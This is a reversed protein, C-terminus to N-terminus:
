DARPNHAQTPGRLMRVVEARLGCNARPNTESRAELNSPELSADDARARHPWRSPPQRHLRIMAGQWAPGQFGEWETRQIGGRQAPETMGPKM